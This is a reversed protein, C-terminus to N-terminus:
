CRPEPAARAARAATRRGRRGSGNIGAGGNAPRAVRAVRATKCGGRRPPKMEPRQDGRDAAEDIRAMTSTAPQDADFVEIGRPDDRAARGLDQPEEFHEAEPPVCLDDILAPPRVEVRPRELTEGRASERKCAAAGATHERPGVLRTIGAGAALAGRTRSRRGYAKPDVVIGADAELIADLPRALELEGLEAVHDDPAPIPEMGVLEGDHHVIGGLPDSVDNATGIQERARSPLDRNSSRESQRGERVGMQRQEDLRIAALEGLRPTGNRDVRAPPTGPEDLSQSQQALVRGCLEGALSGGGYEAPRGPM